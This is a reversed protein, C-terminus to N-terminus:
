PLPGALAICGNITLPNQKVNVMFNVGYESKKNEGQFCKNNDM